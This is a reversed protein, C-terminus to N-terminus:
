LPHSESLTLAGLWASTPACAQSHLDAPSESEIKKNM